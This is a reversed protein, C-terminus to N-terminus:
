VEDFAWSIDFAIAQTAGSRIFARAIGGDSAITLLGATSRSSRFSYQFDSFVGSKDLHNVLRNNLLKEFVKSFVSLLSFPCYVKRSCKKICSGNILGEYLRSFLVGEFM